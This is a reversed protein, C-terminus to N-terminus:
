WCPLQMENGRCSSSCALSVNMSSDAESWSHAVLISCKLCVLNAHYQPHKLEMYLGAGSGKTKAEKFLTFIEGITAIREGRNHEATRFFFPQVATLDKLEKLTFDAV